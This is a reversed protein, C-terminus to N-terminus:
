FLCCDWENLCSCIHNNQLYIEQLELLDSIAQPNLFLKKLAPFNGIGSALLELNNKALSLETLDTLLLIDAQQVELSLNSLYIERTFASHHIQMLCELM